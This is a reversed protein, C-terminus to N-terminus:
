NGRRGAVFVFLSLGMLSVTVLVFVSFIIYDGRFSNTLLFRFLPVVVCTATTVLLLSKLSFQWPFPAWPRPSATWYLIKPFVILATPISLMAYLISIALIPEQAESPGWSFVLILLAGLASVLPGSLGYALVNWSRLSRTVLALATGSFTLAPGTFLISEVDVACAAVAAITALIQAAWAGLAVKKGISKTKSANLHKLAQEHEHQNLLQLAKTLVETQSAYNGRAHIEDALREIEPTSDFPM